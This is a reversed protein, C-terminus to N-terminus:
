AGCGVPRQERLPIPQDAAEAQARQDDLGRPPATGEDGRPQGRFLPPFDECDRPRNMVRQGAATVLKDALACFEHLRSVIDHGLKRRQRSVQHLRDLLGRRGTPRGGPRRFRVALIYFQQFRDTV